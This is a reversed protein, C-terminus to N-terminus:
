GNKTGKRGIKRKTFINTGKALLNIFDELEDKRNEPRFTNNLVRERIVSRFFIFSMIALSVLKLNEQDLQGSSHHRELFTTMYQWMFTGMSTATEKALNDKDAEFLLMMVLERNSGLFETLHMGLNALDSKFDGKGVIKENNMAQILQEQIELIASKFIEKKNGFIRFLTVENVGAKEAIMRTTAGEFGRESLVKMAAQLIRSKTSGSKM